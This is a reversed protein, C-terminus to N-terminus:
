LRYTMIYGIDPLCPSIVQIYPSSMLPTSISHKFLGKILLAHHKFSIDLLLPSIYGSTFHDDIIMLQQPQKCANKHDLQYVMLNSSVLQSPSKWPGQPILQSVLIHFFFGAALGYSFSRNFHYTFIISVDVRQYVSM